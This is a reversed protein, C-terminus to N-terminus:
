KDQYETEKILFNRILGSVGEPLKKKAVYKRVHSKLGDSLKIYLGDNQKAM